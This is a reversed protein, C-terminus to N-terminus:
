HEFLAACKPLALPHRAVCKSATLNDRVEDAFPVEVAAREAHVPAGKDGPGLGLNEDLLSQAFGHVVWATAVVIAAAYIRAPTIRSNM